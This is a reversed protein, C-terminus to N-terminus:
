FFRLKPSGVAHTDQAQDFSMQSISQAGDPIKQDPIKEYQTYTYWETVGPVQVHSSHPFALMIKIM